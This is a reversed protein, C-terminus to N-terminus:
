PRAERPTIRLGPYAQDPAALVEEGGSLGARVEVRDATAAGLELARWRARGGEVVFVGPAGERELLASPPLNPALTAPGILVTFERTETDVERGLRRVTGAIPQPPAPFTLRASQGLAV